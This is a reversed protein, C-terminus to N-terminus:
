QIHILDIRCVSTLVETPIPEVNPHPPQYVREFQTVPSIDEFNEQWPTHNCMMWVLGVVPEWTDEDPNDYGLWHVLYFTETRKKKPDAAM